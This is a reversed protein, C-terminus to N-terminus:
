DCLCPSSRELSRPATASVINVVHYVDIQPTYAPVLLIIVGFPNYCFILISTKSIHISHTRLPFPTSREETEGVLRKNGGYLFDYHGM